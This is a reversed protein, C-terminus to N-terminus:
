SAAALVSKKSDSRISSDSTAAAPRVVGKNSPTAVRARDADLQAFENELLRFIFFAIFLVAGFPKALGWALSGGTPTFAVLNTIICLVLLTKTPKSM